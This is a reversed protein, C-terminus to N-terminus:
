GLIFYADLDGDSDIDVLAVGSGVIEPLLALENTQNGYGSVHLFDIGRTQAEDQFWNTGAATHDGGPLSCGLLYLCCAILCYRILNM